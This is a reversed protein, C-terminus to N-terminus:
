HEQEHFKASIKPSNNKQTSKLKERVSPRDSKEQCQCCEQRVATIFCDTLGPHSNVVFQRNRDNGWGDPDPHIPITSAWEKNHTSFRGDWDKQQVTNALVYLTRDLGFTDIVQAAAEKDLRNDHYHERIADEIAEKCVINAKTSARYQELENHEQAHSAPYPYLPTELLSRRKQELIADARSELCDWVVDM